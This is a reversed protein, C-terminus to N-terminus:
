PVDNRTYWIPATIIRKGDSETIDIYYYRSSGNTLETHTYDITGSTTSTLITANTGSGPVGSYIKLSTVPNSTSSTVTINPAGTSTISSGLQNGNLKFTVYGSCDQSAYFHMQRMADLINNETLSPALVVTRSLATRGHTVNHNDHDITPGLHYGRALMNRYFTLYAMSSPPDSYTTNTSTSPGNEVATGVIALDADANYTSMIGQYDSNNPHALTAFANGGYANITPFLGSAGIYNNKATFTNYQGTDWGLLDPVGYVIVHGGGSIVGWEMGYLALFTSTTSAAAQARGLSWNALAMGASVHNHESIGLFDMCSAADGYAFDGSPLGTGDSYESHSHFNGFYFNLAGSTLTISATLPSTTNYIPGNNCAIENLAYITFYYTGGATLGTVSFTPTSSVSLVIANGITSGASYFIGNSPPTNVTAATSYVVLYDDATTTTYTASVSTSTANNFVLATPQTTPATCAPNATTKTGILPANSRYVAGCNCSTASYSFVFVYYTTGPLFGSATFSTEIGTSVVRGTGITNGITYNGREVPTAELTSSTGIVVLYSYSGATTFSGSLTSSTASNLILNTPQALPLNPSASATTFSSSLPTLTNYQIGSSCGVNNYAFVFLYYTTSPNLDYVPIANSFSSGLVKATGFRDGDSYSTGNIPLTSLTASTSLIKLYGDANTSTFTAFTYDSFTNVFILNTPQSTPAVCTVDSNTAPLNAFLPTATYSLFWCAILSLMYKKM